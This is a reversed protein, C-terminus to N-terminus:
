LCKRDHCCRAIRWDVVGEILSRISKERCVLLDAQSIIVNSQGRQIRFYQGAISLEVGPESIGQLQADRCNGGVHIRHRFGAHGNGHCQVAAQAQDMVVHRFPLLKRLDAPYFVMNLTQNRIGDLNGGILENTIHQLQDLFFFEPKARKRHHIFLALEESQKGPM